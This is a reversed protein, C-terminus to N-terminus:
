PKVAYQKRQWPSLQSWSLTPHCHKPELARAAVSLAAEIFSPVVFPPRAREAMSEDSEYETPIYSEQIILLQVPPLGAGCSYFCSYAGGARLLERRITHYSQFLGEIRGYLHEGLYDCIHSLSGTVRELEDGSVTKLYMKYTTQPQGKM